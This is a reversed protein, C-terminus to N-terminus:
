RECPPTGAEALRAGIKLFAARVAQFDLEFATRKANVVVACGDPLVGREQRFVERILRKIRNRVVANGTKKPVTIGLRRSGAEAPQVYFVLHATHMAGGAAYIRLYEARARIRDARTYSGTLISAVPADAAM